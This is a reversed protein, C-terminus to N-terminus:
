LKSVSKGVLSIKLLEIWKEVDEQLRIDPREIDVTLRTIDAQLDKNNKPTLMNQLTKVKSKTAASLWPLFARDLKNLLYNRLLIITGRQKVEAAMQNLANSLQGILPYYYLTQRIYKSHGSGFKNIFLVLKEWDIIANYNLKFFNM